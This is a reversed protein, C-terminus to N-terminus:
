EKDVRKYRAVGLCRVDIDARELRIVNQQCMGVIVMDDIEFCNSDARARRQDGIMLDNSVVRLLRDNTMWHVLAAAMLKIEARHFHDASNMRRRKGVPGVPSIRYPEHKAGPVTRD